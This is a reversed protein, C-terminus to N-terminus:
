RLAGLVADQFAKRIPSADANPLNLRQILLIMYVDQHPDIWGQTGFAGGHGYTGPSLGATVGQPERVVAWGLGFGMGPVFSGFLEGIQNTTMAEVSQESLLRLVGIRGRNLMLTYLKALDRGTSYLGAAPIPYRANAPLDMLTGPNPVLRGEKQEYTIALRKLQEATPYFTTDTMELPQFLRTQLFKEYSMGSAVEIIRGLADIGMNSYAWRTGPEFELPRQSQALTAEALTYNRKRYLDALGVPPAGPLGSTHTLLDKITIPRKPQRLVLRDSSRESIMWQGKFEPLHKEVPDDIKFKGDDVLMMIGIATIPKTMSAIRFLTHESMLQRNELDRWGVSEVSVVGGKRGVVTVAGAIEGRDVFEQMRERIAKGMGRTRDDGHTAVPSVLMSSFILFACIRMAAAGASCGSLSSNDDLTAAIQVEAAGITGVLWCCSQSRVSQAESWANSRTISLPCAEPPSDISFTM